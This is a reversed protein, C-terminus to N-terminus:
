SELTYLGTRKGGGRVASGAMAAPPDRSYNPERTSMYVCVCVCVCVGGSRALTVTVVIPSRRLEDQFTDIEDDSRATRGRVEVSVDAARSDGDRERAGVHEEM